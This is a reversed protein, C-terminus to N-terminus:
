ASAYVKRERIWSRGQCRGGSGAAFHRRVAFGVSGDSAANLREALQNLCDACPSLSQLEAMSGHLAESHWAAVATAGVDRAHLPAAAFLGSRLEGLPIALMLSLRSSGRSRQQQETARSLADAGCRAAPHSSEWGFCDFGPNARIALSWRADSPGCLHIVLALGFYVPGLRQCM